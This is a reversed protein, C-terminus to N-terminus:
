SPATTSPTAVASRRRHCSARLRKAVLEQRVDRDRGEGRVVSPRFSFTFHVCILWFTRLLFYSLIFYRPSSWNKPQSNVCLMYKRTNWRIWDKKKWKLNCFGLAISCFTLWSLIYCIGPRDQKRMANFWLSTIRFMCIICLSLTTKM